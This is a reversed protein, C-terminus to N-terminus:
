FLSIVSRSLGLFWLLSWARNLSAIRESLLHAEFLVAHHHSETIVWSQVAETNRKHKWIGEYVVLCTYTCLYRLEGIGLDNRAEKHNADHGFIHKNRWSRISENFLLHGRPFTCISSFKVPCFKFLQRLLCLSSQHLLLTFFIFVCSETSYHLLLLLLLLISWVGTQSM